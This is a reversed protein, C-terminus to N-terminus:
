TLLVGPTGQIAGALGQWGRAKGATTLQGQLLCSIITDEFGCACNGDVGVAVMGVVASGNKADSM